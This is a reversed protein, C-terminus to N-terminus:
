LEGRFIVGDIEDIVAQEFEDENNIIRLIKADFLYNDAAKQAATSLQNEAVIYSAGLSSAFVVDKLSSVLVGFIIENNQCHKIVDLNDESFEIVIYGNSPTKSIDDISSVRHFKESELYKHGFVIM